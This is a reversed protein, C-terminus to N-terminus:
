NKASILSPRRRVSWGDIKEDLSINRSISLLAEKFPAREGATLPVPRFDKIGYPIIEAEVTTDRFSLGAMIGKMTEADHQDFILNGLSYLILKGKYCDISEIVHPHHGIIIDAGADILTRASQVQDRSPFKLYETGWHVYCVIFASPNKERYQKIGNVFVSDGSYWINSSKMDIGLAAFIALMRRGVNIEAPNCYTANKRKLGIPVIGNEQLIDHTDQAGETTQDNIHNNALTAHTIRATCLIGVFNSDARFSYPKDPLHALPTIPCELNIFRYNFRDLVPQIKEFLFEKGNKRVRNKVGRALMVDGTFCVSIESKLPVNETKHCSFLFVSSFVITFLITKSTM